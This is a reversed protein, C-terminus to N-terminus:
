PEPTPGQGLDNLHTALHAPILGITIDQTSEGVASIAQSPHVLRGAGPGTYTPDWRYGRRLLYNIEVQFFSPNAATGATSPTVAHTLVVPLKRDVIGEM